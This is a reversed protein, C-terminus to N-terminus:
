INEVSIWRCSSLSTPTCLRSPDELEPALLVNNIDENDKDSVNRKVQNEQIGETAAPM